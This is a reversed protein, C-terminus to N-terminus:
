LNKLTEWVADFRNRLFQQGDQHLDDLTMPYKIFMSVSKIQENLATMYGDVWIRFTAEYRTM